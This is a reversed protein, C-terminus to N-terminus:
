LHKADMFIHFINHSIRVQNLFVNQPCTYFAMIITYLVELSFKGICENVLTFVEELWLHFSM